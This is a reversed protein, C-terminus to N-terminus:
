VLALDANAPVAPRDLHGPPVVRITDTIDLTFDVVGDGDFDFSGGFELTHEGLDLGRVVLWYGAAKAESIETNAPLGFENAGLTDEGLSGLAFLDTVAFHAELDEVPVGDIRVFLDVVWGRITEEVLTTLGAEDAADQPISGLWNLVPLLLPKNVPVSFARDASFVVDDPNQDSGAGAAVFFVRGVDGQGAFEGSLDEFANADDPLHLAWTWWDQTWEAITKGNVKSGPDLVEYNGVAKFM